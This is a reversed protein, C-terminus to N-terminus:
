NLLIVKLRKKAKEAAKYGKVYGEARTIYKEYGKLEKYYADKKAKSNSSNKISNKVNTYEKKASKIQKEVTTVNALKKADFYTSFPKKMAAKANKVQTAVSTSAESQIPAVATFASAAIATATALKIAKKKNM